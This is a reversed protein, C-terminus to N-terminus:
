RTARKVVALLTQSLRDRESSLQGWTVRLTQFGAAAARQDRRRDTEFARRTRHHKHGDTEVIVRQERWLFDPRIAPEGDGLLLWPQVEPDPLGISRALALFREELENWTATSGVRHQELTRRLAGIARNRGSNRALQDGLANLDLLREAEAADLVRELRRAPLVDALDVITRAPTTCPIRNVKTVDETRLTASRHVQIGNRRRGARTPVTVDIVARGSDLLNLLGAAAQHSLAAGPGCALVAAMLRGSPKLLEVPTLAYVGHHIRHLRRVRHYRAITTSSMGAGALQAGSLVGHQAQAQRVIRGWDRQPDFVEWSNPM